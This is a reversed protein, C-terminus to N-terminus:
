NYRPPNWWSPIPTIPSTPTQLASLEAMSTSSRPVAALDAILAVRPSLTAGFADYYDFRGGAHLTLRSALKLEAEGYFAALWPNNRSSEVTPGGLIYNKQNVRLSYQYEGGVTVHHRGINHGLNTEVGVWDAYGETVGAFRTLPSRGGFFGSGYSQYSDYYFRTDLETAPNLDRHYGADVYGRVDESSDAENFNTNYPATPVTKDRQSFLGQIRWSGFQLDGFGHAYHDGDLNEAAGLGPFTIAAEGQNRFLSGSLLASLGHLQFSTTLRGSRGLYSSADGSTEVLTEATPRRTIVNIVGFVANTGFLSSSPGRVIEIHDILDLDLPFETGIQASDYVNDNLRHGNILLLIRSNYDGSRLFGRVGLYTYDRDYATYFGRLSRLVDALTRWGYRTIEDASVVTVAAPAERSDELHRSASYVKVHTLEELSLTMM